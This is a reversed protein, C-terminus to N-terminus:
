KVTVEVDQRGWDKAEDEDGMHLDVRDGNIDGGTDAAVADGYGEVHVESGIPIEDPDVAIVNEDGSLETGDATTGSCGDCEATYATSSMTMTKGDSENDGDQEEDDNTAEQENEEPQDAEEEDNAEQQSAEANPDEQEAAQDDPAEQQEQEEAPEQEGAEDEDNAEQQPAEANPDEQETAQDDADEQVAQDNEQEVAEDEDNEDAEQQGEQDEAPQNEESDTEEREAAQDDAPAEEEDAQDDAPAADQSVANDVADEDQIDLLQDVIILNSDLDNWTKLDDVSVDFEQSLGSLTDGEQVKYEQASVSTAATGALVLGAALSVITKKM